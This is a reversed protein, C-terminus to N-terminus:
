QLVDIAAGALLLISILGNATFFAANVRELNDASIIRHQIILLIAVPVLALLFAFNLQALLAFNLLLLFALLHLVSSVRLAAAMGLRVPLSFLGEAKDFQQDQCSYIIDFGATWLIVASSLIIPTLTLEGTLAIWVASPAIGLALGLWLHALSTFRKSYSYGWLILIALPSLLLALRNLMAASFVLLLTALLIFIWAQMLSIQGTPLARNATRPNRRDYELDAIRNMMMASSRAGVMALLLWLMEHWTPWGDKAVLAAILAFPLAFITHEFKIAELMIGIQRFLTKM